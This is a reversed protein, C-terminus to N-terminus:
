SHAWDISLRGCHAPLAALGRRKEVGFPRLCDGIEYVSVHEAEIEIGGEIPRASPYMQQLATLAEATVNSAEVVMVPTGGVAM